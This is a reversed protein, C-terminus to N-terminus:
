SITRKKTGALANASSRFLLYQGVFRRSGLRALLELTQEERGFFVYDEEPTFPRLGPFPNMTAPATSM